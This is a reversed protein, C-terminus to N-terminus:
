GGLLYFCLPVPAVAVAVLLVFHRFAVLKSMGVLLGIGGGGGLLANGPLNLLVAISLLRHKMIFPTIKSPAKENLFAIRQQSNLPELERLLASAKHLHLWSFLLYLPRCPTIRGIAFSCSLAAVTCLYVLLAGESGLTLMLALGIEMGPVFPLVMLLWYLVSAVMVAMHLVSDHRPFIQFDLQQAFWSGGFNLLGVIAVLLLIRPYRATNVPTQATHMPDAAM